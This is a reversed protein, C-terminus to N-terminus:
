MREAIKRMEDAAAPENKEYQSILQLAEAQSLNPNKCMARDMVMQALAKAGRNSGGSRRSSTSSGMTGYPDVIRTRV